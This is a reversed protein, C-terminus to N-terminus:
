EPRKPNRRQALAIRRGQLVFAMGALFFTGALAAPLFSMGAPQFDNPRNPDYRVRIPGEEGRLSQVGLGRQNSRSYISGSPHRYSIRYRGDPQREAAGEAKAGSFDLYLAERLNMREALYGGLVVLGIGGLM